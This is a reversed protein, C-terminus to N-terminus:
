TTEDIRESRGSTSLLDLKSSCKQMRTQTDEKVTTDVCSIGRNQRTATTQLKGSDFSQTARVRVAKFAFDLSGMRSLGAVFMRGVDVGGYLIAWTSRM